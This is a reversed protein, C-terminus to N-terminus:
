LFFRKEYLKAAATTSAPFCPLGRFPFVPFYKYFRTRPEPHWRAKGAGVDKLSLEILSVLATV